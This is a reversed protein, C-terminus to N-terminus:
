PGGPGNKGEIWLNSSNSVYDVSHFLSDGHFENNPDGVCLDLIIDRISIEFENYYTSTRDLDASIGFSVEARLSEIHSVHRKLIKAYYVERSKTGVTTWQPEIFLFKDTFDPISIPLPQNCYIACCYIALINCYIAIAIYQQGRFYQLLYQLIAFINCYKNCYKLQIAIHIAM